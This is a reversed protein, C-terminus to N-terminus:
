NWFNLHSILLYQVKNLCEVDKMKELMWCDILMKNELEVKNAKTTM